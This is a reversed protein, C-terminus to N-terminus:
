RRDGDVGMGLTLEMFFNVYIDSKTFSVVFDISRSPFEQINYIYLLSKVSIWNVVPAYNEWYNVGCKKIVGHACIISKHEM